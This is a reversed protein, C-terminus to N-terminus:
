MGKGEGRAESVSQFRIQSWQAAEKKLFKYKEM